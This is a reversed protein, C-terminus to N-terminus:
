ACPPKFAGAPSHQDTEGAGQRKIAAMGGSATNASGSQSKATSTFVLNIPVISSKVLM